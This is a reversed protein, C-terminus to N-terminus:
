EPITGWARLTSLTGLIVGLNRKEGAPRMGSGGLDISNTFISAGSFWGNFICGSYGKGVLWCRSVKRSVLEMDFKGCIIDRRISLFGFIAKKMGRLFDV